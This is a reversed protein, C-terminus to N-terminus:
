GAAPVPLTEVGDLVDRVTQLLATPECPKQVFRLGQEAVFGLQAAELDYASTFIVKVQPDLLRMRQYVEHGNLGPM